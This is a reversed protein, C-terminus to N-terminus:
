QNIGQDMEEAIGEDNLRYIHEGNGSMFYKGMYANTQASNASSFIEIRLCAQGDVYTFGNRIYINYEEMSDGELQLVSPHLEQLYEAAGVHSLGYNKKTKQPKPEEPAPKDKISISAVCQGTTWDLRVVTIKENESDKALSVAGDTVTYDAPKKAPRFTEGDVIYFGHEEGTLMEAYSQVSTCVDEFGAYTYIFSGDEATTLQSLHLGAEPQVATITESGIFYANPVVYMEQDEETEGKDGCATLVCLSLFLVLLAKISKYGM